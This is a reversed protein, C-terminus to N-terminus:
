YQITDEKMSMLMSTPEMSTTLIDDVYMLVYKHYEDGTESCTEDIEDTMELLRRRREDITHPNVSCVGTWEVLRNAM